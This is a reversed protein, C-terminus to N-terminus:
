KSVVERSLAKLTVRVEKAANFSDYVSHLIGIIDRDGKVLMSYRYEGKIKSIYEPTPGLLSFSGEVRELEARFNESSEKVRQEDSGSFGISYATTFPPYGMAERLAIEENFFSDYDQAAACKVSYAEPTYTQIVVRGDSDSRGARGSVQTLLEFTREQSRFDGTNLSMDAAMVGVLSVKPFNLGKAVMQTGILIDAEYNAFSRILEEHSHKKATTDKDMRMVRAYPFREKIEQEIKQTGTGFYKIYKSGCEPCIKPMRVRKGCYHCILTDSSKHYTYSVNCNTCKAVYGCKRCSVFSSYGRRNIFLIAQKKNKLTNEIELSLRTSFMSRNGKSLEERMDVVSVKPLSAFAPRKELKCLRIDGNLARKYSEVSPTASGMVLLARNLSCIKEAVEIVDYGPPMDGRYSPEHEEDAIILKLNDFPTFVASRPGIMVSIEGNKARRWQDIREGSSLRSHTLSVKDGFRAFFRDVMQSTLSIEPVLMIAQGGNEVAKEVAKIYVETKGSGTIGYVYVPKRGNEFEEYIVEVAKEQEDNLTIEEFSVKREINGRLVTKTELRLIGNKVLTKIPSDSVGLAEKVKSYESEGNKEIYEIIKIRGENRKDNKSKLEFVAQLNGNLSLFRATKENSKEESVRKEGIIGKEKLKFLEGQAENGFYETIVNKYVKGGCDEIFKLMDEALVSLSDNEWSACVYVVTEKKTKLAAPLMASLIKGLPYFYRERMWYATKLMNDSIVREKDIVKLVEKIKERPVDTENKLRLVFAEATNNRRGFPVIVRMGINVKGENEASVAYDFTKDTGFGGALVVEAYVM